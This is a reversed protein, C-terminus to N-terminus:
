GEEEGTVDSWALDESKKDNGFVAWAPMFDLKVKGLEGNRNKLVYVEVRVTKRRNVKTLRDSELNDRWLCLVADASYEIGGSGRLATLTPKRAEYKERGPKYAERDESSIVLVPSKLDRSLRRLESMNRDVKDQVGELGEGEPPPLIQLYDLVILVPKDGGAKHKAALAVSRITKITDTREAEIITLWRGCERRYYEDAEKIKEWANDCTRGMWIDRSDVSALRALSKIRLEEKSQEFSWFLVPVRDIEAVNDAIQKALTTKGTSPAGALVFVGPTLGNLVDDLHPFGSHLGLLPRGEARRAAFGALLSPGDEAETPHTTVCQETM